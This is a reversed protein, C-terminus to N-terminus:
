VYQKLFDDWVRYAKGGSIEKFKDAVERATTAFALKAIVFGTEVEVVFVDYKLGNSYEVPHSM